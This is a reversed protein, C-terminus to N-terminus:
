EVHGRGADIGKELRTWLCACARAVEEKSMRKMVDTIKRMLADKSAVPHENVKSEVVSWVYLYMPDFDPSNPPWFNNTWGDAPERRVMGPPYTTRIATHALASDQQFVYTLKQHSEIDM